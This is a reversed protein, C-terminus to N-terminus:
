GVAAAAWSAPNRAQLRQRGSADGPEGSHFTRPSRTPRAIRKIASPAISRREVPRRQEGPQTDARNGADRFCAVADVTSCEAKRAAGADGGQFWDVGVDPAREPELGHCVQGTRHALAAPKEVKVGVREADESHQCSVPM